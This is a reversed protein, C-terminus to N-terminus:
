RDVEVTDTDRGSRLVRGPTAGTPRGQELVPVGNVIVHDIGVAEATLRQGDAPLDHVMRVPGRDIREPDFVVIDAWWGEAIRGRDRLGFMRAPADTILHVAEELPLRQEDRVTHGLFRTSFAFTKMMDLHAGADSGGVLVRDDRMLALREKWAADDEGVVMPEVGTALDDALVIDLLTDFPDADGAIEGVTRGVYHQLGPSAVDGITCNAWDTYTRYGDHEVGAALKRRVEPDRLAAVKEAHPLVMVEHWDTVTDYLIAGGFSLRSAMAEPLTLAIVRGGRGKAEDSARLERLRIAREDEGARVVMLNWNLTRHAAVSMSVMTEVTEDDFDRDMSPVIELWTGPHDGVAACLSLIEDLDAFRSPVPDGNHDSHSASRTTSLGLGGEDLSAHLVDVMQQIENASAARGVADDGLVYRRIASHGVLFGANVATHGELRDLWEGFTKWDPDIAARLSEEPMGEVRALMPILYEASGPALPALTFGCNGSIVSTVGHLSSPALMPDWMIQADFHTHPDVFGPAVIRGAADIEVTGSEDVVGIAVIRGQHVGVDARRGPAGTGDVVTGGRLVLDIL